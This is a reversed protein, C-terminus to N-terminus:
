LRPLKFHAIIKDVTQRINAESTDIALDAFDYANKRDELLRRVNAERDGALLPRETDKRLRAIITEAPAKLAVIYAGANLLRRNEERLVAGGGTSIIQRKGMMIERIASTEAERFYPEGDQAFIDAISRNEKGKITEDTDVFTWRLREALAQGVTTKGTGMFGILAINTKDQLTINRM